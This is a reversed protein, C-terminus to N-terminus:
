QCACHTRRLGICCLAAVTKGGESFEFIRSVELM